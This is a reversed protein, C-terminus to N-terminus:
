IYRIQPNCSTIERLCVQYFCVMMVELKWLTCLILEGEVNGLSTQDLHLVFENSNIMDPGVWESILIDNNYLRLKAMLEVWDFGSDNWGPRIIPWGGLEDLLKELPQHGRIKIIDYNICSEYLHKAKVIADVKNNVRDKGHGLEDHDLIKKRGLRKVRPKVPESRSLINKSGINQHPAYMMEINTDTSILLDRLVIDLNERLM